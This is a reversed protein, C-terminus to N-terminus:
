DVPKHRTVPPAKKLTAAHEVIDLTQSLRAGPLMGVLLTSLGQTNSDPATLRSAFNEHHRSDISAGQRM